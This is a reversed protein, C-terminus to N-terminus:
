SIEGGDFFDDGVMYCGDHYSPQLVSCELTLNMEECAPPIYNNKRM